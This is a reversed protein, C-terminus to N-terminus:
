ASARPDGALEHMRQVAAALDDAMARPVRDRLLGALTRYYWLTGDRGGRFRRFHEEPGLRAIDRVQAQANHLKDAGIVLFAHAPKRAIAELYREKRARWPPKPDEDTDTCADVIELVRRGFRERIPERHQPGGDEVVDHLLAAIRQDEDGGHLAVIASVAVPHTIYPINGGKRKDEHHVEIAYLLAQHYRDVPAM